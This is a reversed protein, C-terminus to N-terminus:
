KDPFIKFHMGGFIANVAEGEGLPLLCQRYKIIEGHPVTIEGEELLPKRTEMVKLYSARTNAHLTILPPSVDPPLTGHCAKRIADGLYTFQYDPKDLDKVHILLCSDWLDKIDEPNIDREAPMARDKRLKEWYGLLRLTIRREISSHM